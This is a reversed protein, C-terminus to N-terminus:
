PACERRQDVNARADNWGARQHLSPALRIYANPTIRHGTGLRGHGVQVLGLYADIQCGREAQRRAHSEVLGHGVVEAGGHRSVTSPKQTVWPPTVEAQDPGALEDQQVGIVRGGHVTRIGRIRRGPADVPGDM